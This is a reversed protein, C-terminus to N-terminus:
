HLTSLAAQCLNIAVESQMLRMRVCVEASGREQKNSKCTSTKDEARGLHMLAAPCAVKASCVVSGLM